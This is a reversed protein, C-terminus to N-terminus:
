TSGRQQEGERAPIDSGDEINNKWITMTPLLDVEGHRWFHKLAELLCSAIQGAQFSHIHVNPIGTFRMQRLM